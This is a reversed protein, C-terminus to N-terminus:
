PLHHVLLWLMILWASRRSSNKRERVSFTTLPAWLILFSSMLGRPQRLLTRRSRKSSLGRLVTVKPWYHSSMLTHRSSMSPTSTRIRLIIAMLSSCFSIFGGTMLKRCRVASRRNNERSSTSLIKLIKWTHKWELSCRPWSIPVGSRLTVNTEMALLISLQFDSNRTTRTQLSASRKKM